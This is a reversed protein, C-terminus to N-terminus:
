MGNVAPLDATTSNMPELALNQQTMLTNLAAANAAAAAVDNLHDDQQQALADTDIRAPPPAAAAGEGPGAEPGALNIP